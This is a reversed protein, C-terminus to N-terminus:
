KFTGWEYITPKHGKTDKKTKIKGGGGPVIAGHEAKYPDAVSHLNPIPYRAIEKLRDNHSLKSFEEFWTGRERPIVIGLDTTLEEVSPTLEPEPTPEPEPEPTYTGAQCAQLNKCLNCETWNHPCERLENTHKM